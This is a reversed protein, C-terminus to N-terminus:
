NDIERAEGEKSDKGTRIAELKGELMCSGRSLDLLDTGDGGQLTRKAMTM